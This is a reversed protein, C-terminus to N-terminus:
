IKLNIELDEIMMELKEKEESSMSSSYSTQVVKLETLFAHWGDTMGNVHNRADELRKSIEVRGSEKFLFNFSEYKEWYDSM